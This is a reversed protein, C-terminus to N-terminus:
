GKLMSGVEDFSLMVKDHHHILFALTGGALLFLVLFFAFTRRNDKKRQIEVKKAAERPNEITMNYQSM